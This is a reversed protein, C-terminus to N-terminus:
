RIHIGTLLATTSQAVFVHHFRAALTHADPLTPCARALRAHLAFLASWPAGNPRHAALYYALVHVVASLGLFVTAARSLPGRFGPIRALRAVHQAAAHVTAWVTHELFRLNHAPLRAAHAVLGLAGFVFAHYAHLAAAARSNIRADLALPDCRLKVAAVFAQRLAAGAGASLRPIRPARGCYRRYDHACALDAVGLLRGCWPVYRRGDQVVLTAADLTAGTDLVVPFSVVTKAPNVACGLEPFGVHMARVFREVVARDTSVCLFDDVFHLLLTHATSSDNSNDNTTPPFLARELTDYVISCLLVSVVSGQAIGRQQVFFRCSERVINEQVHERLLALLQAASTRFRRGTPTLVPLRRPEPAPATPQPQPQPQPSECPEECTRRTHVSIAGSQARCTAVDTFRVTYASSRLLQTAARLVHEQSITDYCHSVDCKAFYLQPLPPLEEEEEEEDDSYDDGDDDSNHDNVHDQSRAQRLRQVFELIRPYAARPSLLSRPAPSGHARAHGLVALLNRLSANVPPAPAATGPRRRARSMNTLVRVGRPTPLLRLPAAALTRRRLAAAAAETPVPRLLRARELQALALCRLGRWVSHRYYRVRAGTHAADTCYFFQRLLRAFFTGFLFRLWLGLLRRRRTSTQQPQMHQRQQRPQQQPQQQADNTATTCPPHQLWPIDALRLGQLLHAASLAEGRPLAVLEVVRRHLVRRNHASGTMARPVVRRFCAWLVAVVARPPVHLALLRAADDEPTAGEPTAGETGVPPLEYRGCLVSHLVAAYACRHHRRLLAAFLPVLARLDAPVHPRRYTRAAAAASHPGCPAWFVDCVLRRAARKSAAGAPLLAPPTWEACPVGAASHPVGQYLPREIRARLPGAAARSPQQQQQQQQTRIPPGCLQHLATGDPARVFVAFHAFLHALAARGVAREVAEWSPRHVAYLTQDFTPPLAPVPIADPVADPFALLDGPAGAGVLTTTCFAAFSEADGDAPTADAAPRCVDIALAECFLQAHPPLTHAFPQTFM